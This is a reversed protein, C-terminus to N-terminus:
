QEDGQTEKAKSNIVKKATYNTLTALVAALETISAAPATIFRFTCVILAVNTLSINGDHEDVLRFFTLIRTLKQM